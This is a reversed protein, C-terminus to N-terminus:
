LFGRLAITKEVNNFINRKWRFPFAALLGYFTIFFFDTKIDYTTCFREYSLFSNDESYLNSIFNLEMILGIQIFCCKRRLLLLLISGSQFTLITKGVVQPYQKIHFDLNWCMRIFYMVLLILYRTMM